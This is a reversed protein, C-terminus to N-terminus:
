KSVSSGVLYNFMLPFMLVNLKNEGTRTNIYCTGIRIATSKSLVEREYNLTYLLGNGLFEFYVAQKAKVGKFNFSFLTSNVFILLVLSFKIKHVM